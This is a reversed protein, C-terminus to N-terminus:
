RPLISKKSCLNVVLSIIGAFVAADALNITSIGVNIFDAVTGDMLRDLLNSAAGGLVLSVGIKDEASFFRKGWFIFFLLVASVLVFNFFGLNMGFPLSPNEIVKLPAFRQVAFKSVVDVLVVWFIVQKSVKM